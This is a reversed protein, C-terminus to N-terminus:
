KIKPLEMEICFLNNNTRAVIDLNNKQCILKVLDLGIGLGFIEKQQRHYKQFINKTDIEKFSQNCILFVLKEEKQTTSIFINGNEKTYKIANSILNDLVREMEEQNLWLSIQQAVNIKFILSRSHAVLSFYKVRQHLLASFDFVKKERIKDYYSISYYLDDYINQLTKCAALSMQTYDSRKYELEQMQMASNIISLPTHLEHFLEEMVKKLNTYLRAKQLHAQIRAILEKPHFPKAIYDAAGVKFGKIVDETSDKATLFIVPIDKTSKDQKLKRLVKYGDMKPMIVDLLILEPHFKKIIKLGDEGNSAVKIDYKYPTLMHSFLSLNEKKDDIIVIKSSLSDKHVERPQFNQQTFDGRNEDKKSSLFTAINSTEKEISIAMKKQEECLGEKDQLMQSYGLIINLSNHIDHLTKSSLTISNM